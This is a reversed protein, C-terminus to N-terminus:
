KDWEINADIHKREIHIINRKYPINKFLYPTIEANARERTTDDSKM